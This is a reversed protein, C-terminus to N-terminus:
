NNTESTAKKNLDQNQANNDISSEQQKELANLDQTSPKAINTNGGIYGRIRELSDGLGRYNKDIEYASEYVQLADLYNTGREYAAGLNVLYVVNTPSYITAKLFSSEAQEYNESYLYLLGLFNNMYSSTPNLTISREIADIAENTFNLKYLSYGKQFYLRSSFQNVIIGERAVRLMNTYDKIAMYSDALTEFYGIKLVPSYKIEKEFLDIATNYNKLYYARYANSVNKGDYNTQSYINVSFVILLLFIINNKM